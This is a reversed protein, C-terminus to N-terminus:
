AQVPNLGMVEAIDACHEVLHVILGVPLQPGNRSLGPLKGPGNLLNKFIKEGIVCCTCVHYKALTKM